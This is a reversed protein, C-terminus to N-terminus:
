WKSKFVKILILLYFGNVYLKIMKYYFLLWIVNIYM